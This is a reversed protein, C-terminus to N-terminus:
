SGEVLNSVDWLRDTVGAALAPTLGKLTRPQWVFNYYAFNLACAARLNELKKSFGLALRTFRRQFTRVSLNSREVISTCVKEPNPKGYIITSVVESVRPPSYRGPGPNEAEYLKTLQAYDIFDTGFTFGVTDTYGPWSDSTIHPRNGNLTGRLRNLFLTATEATRKGLTWAPVLKTDHDIAFFLYQDGIDPNM